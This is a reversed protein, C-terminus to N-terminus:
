MDFKNPTLGNCTESSFFRFYYFIMGIAILNIHALEEVTLGGQDWVMELVKM